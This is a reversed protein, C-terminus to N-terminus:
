HSDWRAQRQRFRPAKGYRKVHPCENPRLCRGLSLPGKNSIHRDNNGERNQRAVPKSPSGQGTQPVGNGHFKGLQRHGSLQCFLTSIVERTMVDKVKIGDLVYKLVTMKYGSKAANNLFLGIFIFWIGGIINGMLIIIGGLIAIGIGFFSGIRSVVFTAKKINNWRGWLYARLIRGGDLPFGPILNFIVLVLNVFALYDFMAVFPTSQSFLTSNTLTWFIVALILSCIPGAVAINFEMRPSRPEESIQAVGGFIFLKITPVPIGSKQAVYSHSLEHLLVCVFLLVASVAGLIFYTSKDLGPYKSPFFGGSLSWFLLFFIILWSYDVWIEIGLITGLKLGRGFM